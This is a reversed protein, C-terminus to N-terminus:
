LQPREDYFEVQMRMSGIPEVFHPQEPALLGPTGPSLIQEEASDGFCLKARGELLRVVGWIGPKTRHEHRLGDPLTTEDFVHTTHHPEPNMDGIWLAFSAAIIRRM